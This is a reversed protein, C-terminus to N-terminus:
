PQLTGNEQEEQCKICLRAWPVAELRKRGIPDECNRCEGFDKGEVRLIADDILQLQQRDANSKSFMFEKTYSSSAKDAIDMTTGSEDAQRGYDETKQVVDAVEKRKALLRNRFYNLDKRTM